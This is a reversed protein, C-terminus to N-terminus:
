RREAKFVTEAHLEQFLPPLNPNVNRLSTVSVTGKKEWGPTLYFQRRKGGKLEITLLTTWFGTGTYDFLTKGTAKEFSSLAFRLQPATRYVKIKRHPIARPGGFVVGAIEAKHVRVYERLQQARDEGLSQLM